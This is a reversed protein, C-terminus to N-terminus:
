NLQHAFPVDPTGIWHAVSHATARRVLRAWMDVDNDFVVDATAPVLHWYGSRIESALQDPEWGLHGVILRYPTPKDRVLDELNQKQAAVYIGQGTEAEALDSSGHVAVVPGSLPGGFHVLGLSNSAKRVTEEDEASPMASELRNTQSGSTDSDLTEDLSSEFESEYQSANEPSDTQDKNRGMMQMLSEPSPQMPRNLMVGITRNEDDHVILCVGRSYIPDDIISSAVLLKGVLPEYM